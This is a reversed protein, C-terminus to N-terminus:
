SAAEAAQQEGVQDQIQQLRRPWGHGVDGEREIVPHETEGGAQGNGCAEEDAGDRHQAEIDGSLPMRQLLRAWTELGLQEIYQESVLYPAIRECGGLAPAPKFHGQDLLADYHVNLSGPIHGRRGYHMDGTGAYVEPSLANVTCIAADGIAVANHPSLRLIGLATPTYDFYGGWDLPSPDHMSKFVFFEIEPHVYFTFGREAAKELNRRLVYRPDGWFPQGDPTYIDCFM